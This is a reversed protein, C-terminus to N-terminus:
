YWGSLQLYCRKPTASGSPAWWRALSLRAISGAPLVEITPDTGVYTLYLNIDGHVYHYKDKEYSRTHVLEADTRWFCVSHDPVQERCIHAAGTGEFKLAHAFLDQVGCQKLSRIRAVFDILEQDGFRRKKQASHVLVDETHPAECDARPSYTMDWLDGIQFDCASSQNRGHANLLRVNAKSTTDYGGVCVKDKMATRAVILVQGSVQARLPRLVQAFDDGFDDM